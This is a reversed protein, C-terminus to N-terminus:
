NKVMIVKAVSPVGKDNLLFLMYPGPPALNPSPPATATLTSGSQTVTLPYIYQSQNFAHTASGLRILNARQVTSAGQAQVTFSQGYHVEAPASQIVPRVALSGDPNFLYPPSFIEANTEQTQGIAEGGGATLVRADPLLVATSHYIRPNVQPALTSWQETAPDWMEAFKVAQAENSNSEGATGGTILVKGDALITANVQHRAFEMPRGARWKPAAENIDILEVSNTPPSGGGAEIIKGPAYMVTGGYERDVVLRTTIVQFKGTSPDFWRTLDWEGAYFIKGNPAVFLRPYYGWGNPVDLLRWSSGNWFEVPKVFVHNEDAGSSAMVQGNPLVTATPYWRGHTMDPLRTWQETAPDFVDADKTGHGDSIHGGIVLLKGDAM